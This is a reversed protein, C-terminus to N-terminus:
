REQAESEIKEKVTREQEQLGREEIGKEGLFMTKRREAGHLYVNVLILRPIM